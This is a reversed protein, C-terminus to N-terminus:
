IAWIRVFSKESREFLLHPYERVQNQIIERNESSILRHRLGNIGKFVNIVFAIPANVARSVGRLKVDSPTHRTRKHAHHEACGHLVPVACGCLTRAACGRLTRAAGVRLAVAAGVRLAVAAGVGHSCLVLDSKFDASIAGFFM